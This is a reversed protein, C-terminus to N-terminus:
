YRNELHHPTIPVKMPLEINYSAGHTNCAIEATISPELDPGRRSCTAVTCVTTNKAQLITM